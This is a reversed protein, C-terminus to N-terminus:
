KVCGASPTTPIDVRKICVASGTHSRRILVAADECSLPVLDIGGYNHLVDQHRIFCRDPTQSTLHYRAAFAPCEGVSVGQSTNCGIVFLCVAAGLLQRTKTVIYPVAVRIADQTIVLFELVDHPCFHGHM